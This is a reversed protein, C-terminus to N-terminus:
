TRRTTRPCQGSRSAQSRQIRERTRGRDRHVTAREGDNSGRSIHTEVCVRRGWVGSRRLDPLPQQGARRHHRQPPPARRRERSRAVDLPAEDGRQAEVPVRDVGVLRAAGSVLLLSASRKARDSSIGRSCNAAIEPRGSTSSASATPAGSASTARRRRSQKEGHGCCHPPVGLGAWRARAVVSSSSCFTLSAKPLPCRYRGHRSAAGLLPTPAFACGANPGRAHLAPDAM